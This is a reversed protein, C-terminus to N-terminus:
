SPYCLDLAVTGEASATNPDLLVREEGERGERLCLVPQNQHGERRMYFYRGGRVRPATVLGITLLETLRRHIVYRGPVADLLSRTYANQEEVWLETETSESDELWRYPDAITHGHMEDVVTDVRTPPPAPVTQM